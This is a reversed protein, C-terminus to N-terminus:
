VVERLWDNLLEELDIMGYDQRENLDFKGAPESDGSQQQAVTIDTVHHGDDHDEAIIIETM